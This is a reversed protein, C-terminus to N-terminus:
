FQYFLFLFINKFYHDFLFLRLLIIVNHYVFVREELGLYISKM